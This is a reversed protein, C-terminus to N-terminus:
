LGIAHLRHRDQQDLSERFTGASVAATTKTGSLTGSGPNTGIAITVSSTDATLNGYQDLVQVTVAPTISAGAATNTPQVGFAMQTAVGPTINFSSSTAGTLSGDSASLTYGTGVKNIALTSFTAVGGVAAVTATGSLTGSGPDTGIAITVNSTDATLNGYQDLVQVTVAPAISM